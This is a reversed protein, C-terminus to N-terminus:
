IVDALKDPKNCAIIDLKPDCKPGVAIYVFGIASRLVLTVFNLNRTNIGTDVIEQTLFPLGLQLLSALFLGLFLQWIHRQYPRFYPALFGKVSKSSIQNGEQSFFAPTTEFLLLIGESDENANKEPIWGKLFDQRRIRLLDM